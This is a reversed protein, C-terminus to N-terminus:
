RASDARAGPAQGHHARRRRRPQVQHRGADARDLARRRHCGAISCRLVSEREGPLSRAPRRQRLGGDGIGRGDFDNDVGAEASIEKFTQDGLNQFLKKKQYGSWTMDGITPGSTVDTFDIGPKIIMELLVPIYNEKSASRLGNVVFLDDWGDNDFDGFKAAWGWLTDCTNTEKSLDTFTGDDNNHWFMNCEKMYEDTINTVYIDLWGDNDYDAVDVNMGKQTDIGIAKETADHFTGHRNNFFIRDTGYDGALYLDQWGDNNFDGHGIDLTWGTHKRSLGAKETVEEFRIEASGAATINRWLTVGGGNDAEDLDNPLM